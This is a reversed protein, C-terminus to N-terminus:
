TMMKLKGNSPKYVQGPCEKIANLETLSQIEMNASIKSIKTKKSIDDLTIGEDANQYVIALIKNQQKNM